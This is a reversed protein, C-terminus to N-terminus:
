SPLKAYRIPDKLYQHLIGLLTWFISAYSASELVVNFVAFINIFLFALFLSSAMSDGFGGCRVFRSFIILNITILLIFGVLGLRVLAYLYSNHPGHVYPLDTINGPRNHTIFSLDQNNIDFIPTGFGIGFVPNNVFNETIMHAWYMIRWYTNNDMGESFISYGEVYFDKYYFDIMYLGFISFSILLLISYKNFIFKSVGFRRVFYFLLSASLIVFSTSGLKMLVTVLVFFLILSLFKKNHYFLFPIVSFNSIMGGFSANIAVFVYSFKHFFLKRDKSIYKKSLEIGFFFSFISYAFTTTRFFQYQNGIDLFLYSFIISFFCYLILTSIVLTLKDISILYRKFHLLFIMFGYLAFLENVYAIREINVILHVVFLLSLLLLIM